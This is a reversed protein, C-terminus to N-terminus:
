QPLAPRPVPVERFGAPIQFLAPADPINQIDSLTIEIEYGLLANRTIQRVVLGDQPLAGIGLGAAMANGAAAMVAAYEKFQDAIWIEGEMTITRPIDPPLAMNAPIPLDISMTFTSREARLGAVMAFQGTRVTTVKPTLQLGAGSQVDSLNWYTMDQPNLVAISGGRLLLVSGAPFMGMAMPFEMRVGGAGVTTTTSGAPMRAVLMGGVLGLIPSPPASTQIMRTETTTIYRLEASAPAALASMFMLVSLIKLM